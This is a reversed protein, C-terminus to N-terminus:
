IALGETDDGTEQSLCFDRDEDTFVFESEPMMGKLLDKESAKWASASVKSFGNAVIDVTEIVKGNNAKYMRPNRDVPDLYVKDGVKLEAAARDAEAKFLVVTRKVMKKIGGFIVQTNNVILNVVSDGQDNYSAQNMGIIEGAYFKEM